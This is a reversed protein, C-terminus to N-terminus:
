GVKVRLLRPVTWGVEMAAPGRLCLAALLLRVKTAAQIKGNIYRYYGGQADESRDRGSTELPYQGVKQLWVNCM